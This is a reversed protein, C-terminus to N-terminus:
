PTLSLDEESVGAPSASIKYPDQTSVDCLDCRCPSPVPSRNRLTSPSADFVRGLHRASIPSHPSPGIRCTPLSSIQRRLSSSRRETLRRPISQEMCSRSTWIRCRIHRHAAVNAVLKRSGSDAGCTSEGMGGKELFRM